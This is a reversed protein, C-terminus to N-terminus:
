RQAPQPAPPGSAHGNQKTHRRSSTTRVGGPHARHPIGASTSIADHRCQGGGSTEDERAGNRYM